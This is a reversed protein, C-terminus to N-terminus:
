ENIELNQNVCETFTDCVYNLLQQYNEKTVDIQAIPLLITLTYDIKHKVGNATPVVVDVQGLMQNKYDLWPNQSYFFVLQLQVISGQVRIADVYFKGISDRVFENSTYPIRTTTCYCVKAFNYLDFVNFWDQFFKKQLSLVAVDRDKAVYAQYELFHVM